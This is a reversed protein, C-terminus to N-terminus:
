ENHDGDSNDELPIRAADDFDRSKRILFLWVVLAIFAAMLALTILGRIVGVDIVDM